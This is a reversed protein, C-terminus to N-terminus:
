ARREGLDRAIFALVQYADDPLVPEALMPAEILPVVNTAHAAAAARVLASATPLGYRTIAASANPLSYAYRQALPSLIPLTIDTLTYVAVGLAGNGGGVHRVYRVAAPEGATSCEGILLSVGRARAKVYVVAGPEACVVAVADAGSHVSVRNVDVFDARSGAAEMRLVFTGGRNALFVRTWYPALAIPQPLEGDPGIVKTREGEAM